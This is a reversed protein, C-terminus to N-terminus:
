REVEPTAMPTPTATPPPSYTVPVNACNGGLRTVSGSVWGNEVQYWSYDATRGIVNYIREPNLGQGVTPFSTSPGSRVNVFIPNATAIVCPGSTPLQPLTIGEPTATPQPPQIPPPVTVPVPLAEIPAFGILSTDLPEPPLPPAIPRLDEGVPVQVQTGAIATQAVGNVEVTAHGELTGVTLSQNPKASLLVTSGLSVRVENVLLEIEGVGQPTQILMGSTPVNDCGADGIGSRFYFAQMPGYSPEPNENAGIVPLQRIDGTATVANAVVWGASGEDRQIHLWRNDSTRGDATARQGGGLVGLIAYGTGPGGRVNLNTNAVIEHTISARTGGVNEIAVDGFLLMTVNQGPLTDPLNAQVRLLAVGWMGNVLDMPSLTLSDLAVLDIIDGEQQFSTVTSGPRFTADVALHGVCAQNRGTAQCTDDVLEVVNEVLSPCTLQEGVPPLGGGGSSVTVRLSFTGYIRNTTGVIITYNDTESVTFSDQLSGLLEPNGVARVLNGASGNVFFFPAMNPTLATLEVSVTQGADAAFTYSLQPQAASLTGSVEVGNQAVSITSLLLILLFYVGCLARKAIRHNM